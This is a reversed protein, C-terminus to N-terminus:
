TTRSWNVHAKDIKISPVGTGSDKQVIFTPQVGASTLAAVKSYVVRPSNGDVDSIIFAILGSQRCDIAFRYKTGAVLTVGTSADDTDTVTDDIEAKLVGSAELRFWANTTTNDLVNDRASGLGFVIREDAIPLTVVTLIAEFYPRKNAPINLVDGWNLAVTEAESTSALTIEYLGDVGNAVMGATPSGAPSLDYLNWEDRILDGVFDDEWYVRRPDSGAIEGFAVATASGQRNGFGYLPGQFATGSATSGERRNPM